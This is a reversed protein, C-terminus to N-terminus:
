SQGFYDIKGQFLCINAHNQLDRVLIEWSPTQKPHIELNRLELFSMNSKFIFYDEAFPVGSISGVGRVDL